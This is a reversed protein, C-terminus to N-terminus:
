IHLNAMSVLRRKDRAEGSEDRWNLMEFGLRDSRAMIILQLFEASLRFDAILDPGAVNTGYKLSFFRTRLQGILAVAQRGEWVM